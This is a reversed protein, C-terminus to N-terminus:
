NALPDFPRAGPSRCSVPTELGGRHLLLAIRMRARTGAVEDEVERAGDVVAGGGARVDREPDDIVQPLAVPAAAPIADAAIAAVVAAAIPAARIPTTTVPAVVVAIIPTVVAPSWAPACRRGYAYGGGARRTRSSRCNRSTRSSRRTPRPTIGLM